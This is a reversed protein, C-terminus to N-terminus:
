ICPPAVSAQIFTVFLDQFGKNVVSANANQLVGLAPLRLDRFGARTSSSDAGVPSSPFSNPLTVNPTIAAFSVPSVRTPENRFSQLGDWVAKGSLRTTAINTEDNTYLVDVASIREKRYNIAVAMHNLADQKSATHAPVGMMQREQLTLSARRTDGPRRPKGASDTSGPGSIAPPPEDSYLPAGGFSRLAKFLLSLLIVTLLYRAFKESKSPKM